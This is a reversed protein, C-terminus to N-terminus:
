IRMTNYHKKYGALEAITDFVVSIIKNNVNTKNRVLLIDEDSGITKLIKVEGSDIQKQLRGTRVIGIMNQSLIAEATVEDSVSNITYLPATSLSFINETRYVDNEDIIVPFNEYYYELDKGEKYNVRHICMAIKENGIKIKDLDKTFFNSSIIGLDITNKELAALTNSNNDAKINFSIEPYINKVRNIAPLFYKYSYFDHGQLILSGHKSNQDGIKEIANMERFIVVAHKYLRQGAITLEYAGNKKTLLQTGMRKELQQIHKTVTPQTYNLLIAARSYNLENAVVYFTQLLNLEM